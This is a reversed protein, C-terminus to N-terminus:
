IRHLICTWVNEATPVQALIRQPRHHDAFCNPFIVIPHTMLIPYALGWFRRLTYAEGISGFAPPWYKPESTGVAVTFIALSGLLAQIICYLNMWFGLVSTLRIILPEVALNAADTWPIRDPHFNIANDEPQSIITFMDITLCCVLLLGAKRILFGAKSPVYTPDKKSFRPIREVEYSTGANRTTVAAFYGFRTRNWANAEDGRGKGVQGQGQRKIGARVSPGRNEFCWQSVLATEIYQFLFSISHAGLLTAWIVKGSAELCRPLVHIVCSLMLPLGALRMYSSPPTFGVVIANLSVQFFIVLILKLLISPM